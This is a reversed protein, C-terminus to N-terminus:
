ENLDCLSIARTQTPRRSARAVADAGPDSTAVDLALVTCGKARFGSVQGERNKELDYTATGLYCVVFDEGAAKGSLRLVADVVAAEGMLASGSGGLVARLKPSLAMSSQRTIAWVVAILATWVSTPAQM